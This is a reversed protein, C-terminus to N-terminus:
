DLDLDVLTEIEDRERQAIEELTLEDYEDPEDYDDWDEIRMDVNHEWMKDWEHPWIFDYDEGIDNFEWFDCQCYMGYEGCYPCPSEM